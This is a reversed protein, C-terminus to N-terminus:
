RGPPPSARKGGRGQPAGIMRWVTAREEPGFIGYFALPVYGVTAVGSVTVIAWYTPPVVFWSMVARVAVLFGGTVIAARVIPAYFRRLDLGLVRCTYWPTYLLQNVALPIATGIAVGVMGYGRALVISLGANAAAECVSAVAYPRHRALAYLANNAMQMLAQIMLAAGMVIFVLYADDYAPGMWRVIFLRGVVYTLGMGFFSLVANIMTFSVLKSRIAEHDGVAEYRVFVPTMINTARNILNLSYEALGAGISYHTVASAGCFGAVVMADIRFRIMDSLQNIFSWVSYGFMERAIGRRVYHARVKLSPWLRRGLRHLGVQYARGLLFSIWALSVIGGGHTLVLVTLLANALALALNLVEVLDYRLQSTAVFSFARFPFGIGLNFGQLIVVIRVPWVYRADVFWPVLLAVVGTTILVLLGLASLLAVATSVVENVRETDHRAIETTIFRNFAASFGFDLLYYYFVIGCIVVWVGYWHDGLTRVVFPTIFFTVAMNAITTVIRM